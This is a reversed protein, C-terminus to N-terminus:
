QTLPNARAFATAPEGAATVEPVAAPKGPCEIELIRAVLDRMPRASIETRRANTVLEAGDAVGSM